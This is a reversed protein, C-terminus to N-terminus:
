AGVPVIDLYEGDPLAHGEGGRHPAPRVLDDVRCGGAVIALQDPNASRTRVRIRVDDVRAGVADRVGRHRAVVILDDQDALPRGLPWHTDRPRFLRAALPPAAPASSTPSSATFLWSGFVGTIRQPALRVASLKALLTRAPPSSMWTTATPSLQPPADVTTTSLP